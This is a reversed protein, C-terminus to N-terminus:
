AASTIVLAVSCAIFLVGLFITANYLFAEFGRKTRFTDTVGGGFLTGLGSNGRQLMIAVVLLVSIVIEAVLLFDRM